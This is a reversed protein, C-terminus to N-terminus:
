RDTGKSDAERCATCRGGQASREVSDTRGIPARCEDCKIEYRGGGLNPRHDGPKPPRLSPSWVYTPGQPDCDTM